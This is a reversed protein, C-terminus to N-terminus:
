PVPTTTLGDTATLGDFGGEVVDINALEPLAGPQVATFTATSDGVNARINRFPSVDSLEPLADLRTAIEPTLPQFSESDLVIYDFSTGDELIRGFTDRLSSTFVAAGTILTVGIM